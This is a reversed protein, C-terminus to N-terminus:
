IDSDIDDNLFVLEMVTENGRSGVPLAVANLQGVIPTATDGLRMSLGSMLKLKPIIFVCTRVKGTIDDKVRTKAQLSFYGNTLQSGITLTSYGDKYLYGYDIIYRKGVKLNGITDESIVTYDTIQNGDIDYVYMYDVPAYKLQIAGNEDADLAERQTFVFKANKEKTVLRSNTLIALQENSFVGQVLNLKIEEVTTWWVHDKDGFGGHATVTKAVENFNSIQIKDFAVVVENPTFTKGNVEINYTPKILVDYLEKLSYESSM